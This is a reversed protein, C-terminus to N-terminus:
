WRERVVIVLDKEYEKVEKIGILTLDRRKGEVVIYPVNDVRNGTQEQLLMKMDQLGKSQGEFIRRANSELIGAETAAHL